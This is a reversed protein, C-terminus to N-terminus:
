STVLTHERCRILGAYADNWLLVAGGDELVLALSPTLQARYQATSAPQSESPELEVKRAAGGKLLRPKMLIETCLRSSTAFGRRPCNII